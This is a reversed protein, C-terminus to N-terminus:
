KVRQWIEELEDLTYADFTKGSRHVEEELKEFRERFKRLAKKLAQEPDVDLKRALSATAFLLDGIEDSLENANRTKMATRIEQIEEHLKELVEEAEEWDFGVGGAKEGIRFAMTLAPMSSPIGSLVSSKEGSDVKIKEWQDRVESPSLTKQEGFVHPHRHILKEVITVISDDVTFKGAEEALQGHFVVQAMLDGLEEKMEDYDEKEVAEIFEYAEEILYPLLTRHNQKRDWPCGEPSRLLAFLARLREFPPKSEDFVISAFDTM